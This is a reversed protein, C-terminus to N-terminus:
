DFNITVPLVGTYQGFMGPVEAPVILKGGITFYLEGGDLHVDSNTYSVWEQATSDWIFATAPATAAVTFDEVTLKETGSIRTLEIDSPFSIGIRTNPSGWVRIEAQQAAPPRNGYAGAGDYVKATSGAGTSLRGSVPDIVVYSQFSQPGIAGFHLPAIQQVDLFGIFTFYITIDQPTTATQGGTWNLPTGTQGGGQRNITPMIFKATYDGPKYDGPIDIRIDFGLYLTQGATSAWNINTAGANPYGVVLAADASGNASYTTFTAVPDPVGGQGLGPISPNSPSQSNARWAPQETVSMGQQSQGIAYFRGGVPDEVFSINASNYFVYSGNAQSVVRIWAPQLDTKYFKGFSPTNAPTYSGVATNQQGLAIGPLIPIFLLAIVVCTIFAIYIRFFKM